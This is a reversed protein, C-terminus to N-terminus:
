LTVNVGLSDMLEQMGPHQSIIDRFEQRLANQDYEAQDLYNEFDHNAMVQRFADDIVPMYEELEKKHQRQFAVVDKVPKGLELSMSLGPPQAEAYWDPLAFQELVEKAEEDSLFRGERTRDAQMERAKQLAEESFTVTDGQQRTTSQVPTQRPHLYSSVAQASQTSSINM